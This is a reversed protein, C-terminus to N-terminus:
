LSGPGVRCTRAAASRVARLVSGLFGLALPKGPTLLDALTTTRGGLRNLSFAPARAGVALGAPAGVPASRNLSAAQLGARALAAEMVDLRLLLRGNQRLVHTFMWTQAGVVGIIVAGAVLGLVFISFRPM